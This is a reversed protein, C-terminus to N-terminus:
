AVGARSADAGEKTRERRAVLWYTKMPGGGKVEVVGREEVEHTRKVRLAAAETLQIRGSAGHSEMRSATNVTEGWLDYAFKGTGIIGAIVPGCHMGIRVGLAMGAEANFRQVVGLMALAMDAARAPHDDAYDPVGAAAMYADGITKIKELGHERTLADFDSFLRNLMGVLARPGVERSLASFGVLDAFLVTCEAIGDAITGGQTRLREAISAPLLSLILEDSRKQAIRVRAESEALRRERDEAVARAAFVLRVSRETMFGVAFGLAAAGVLLPVHNTVVVMGLTAATAAAYAGVLLAALALGGRPSFRGFALALLLVFATYSFGYSEALFRDGRVAPYLACVMGLALVYAVVIARQRHAWAPLHLAVATAATLPILASWLLQQIGQRNVSFAVLLGTVSIIVLFGLIGLALMRYYARPQRRYENEFGAELEPTPFELTFPRPQEV